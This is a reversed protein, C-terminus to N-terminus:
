QTCRLAREVSGEAARQEDISTKRARGLNCIRTPNIIAGVGLLSPWSHMSAPAALWNNSITHAYPYRQAKLAPVFEEELRAGPNFPYAPDLIQILYNFMSRFDKATINALTANTIEMGCSRLYEIIDRRMLAQYSKERLPRPDKGSAAAGTAQSPGAASPWM